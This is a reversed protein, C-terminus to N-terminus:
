GSLDFYLYLFFMIEEFFVLIGWFLFVFNVYILIEVFFLFIYDYRVYYGKVVNLYFVNIKGMFFIMFIFINYLRYM